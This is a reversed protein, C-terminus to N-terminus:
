TEEGIVEDGKEEDAIDGYLEVIYSKFLAQERKGYDDAFERHKVIDEAQTLAKKLMELKSM